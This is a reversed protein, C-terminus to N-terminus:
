AGMMAGFATGLRSAFEPTVDVNIEGSIGREGFLSRNTRSGWVLNASVTAGGEVTKAPWIKISPKIIAKEGIMTRDGIVSKEYIQAQFGVNVSGCITCGRLQAQSGIKAGQWIIARKLSAGESILCQQGVVSYEEVVANKQIHANQGIWCPKKIIAGEDIQVGEEMWVGPLVENAHFRIGVKKDLIDCHCQMYADLDGIDCWYDASVYGFMPANQALLNPFVDKGFDFNKNKEYQQLVSPELIYIGTNVTDSFVENWQPKEFFRVIKGTSDTMVVGYELPMPVRTLVLTAQSQKQRHFDIATTIDLDTLADGSIVIFTEDLMDEANKVSGATGLPQEETYYRLHVGFREGDGFYNIIAEPCYQLTVGIDLINHQKLLNIIHEMVPRNMVPVMPKPQGCTLPRLRTGEGGAMIIAKM